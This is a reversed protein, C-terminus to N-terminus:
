KLILRENASHCVPECGPGNPQSTAYSPTFTQSAIMSGGSTIKVAVSKPAGDFRIDSFGHSEKPLACGSEGITVNKANCRLSPQGCPNLPLIGACHVARGDLTIDFVYSGPKWRYGQDLSVTLGNSCGIQTCIRAEQAASAPGAGMALITMVAAAIRIDM